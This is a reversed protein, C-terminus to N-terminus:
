DELLEVLVSNQIDFGRDTLKWTGGTHLLLGRKELMRLKEGYCQDLPVGHMRAFDRESVGRNMRLGLMMTEFRAEPPRILESAPRRRNRVADEYAELTDPNVSRVCTFGAKGSHVGTMSAASVGLGLYPVQTWYGINHMCESGPRAFNSVEYQFLGQEATKLKVTDYMKRETDPDPLSLRGQELDECLPTGEEPILGYASLHSPNLSLAADLTEEWEAITQAPIGFILDLNLNTIGARRALQVSAAVEEFQHIRGLLHLLRDQRAQMGFSLRNVGLAAAADMWEATVTGPNAEVTFEKVAGLDLIGDLGRVLASLLASPLLSPTGGGIYVTTVPENAETHRQGAEDLILGIYNEYEAEKDAYSVFACYRCKKRCFPIHVYLEM